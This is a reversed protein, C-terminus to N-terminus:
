LDREEVICKLWRRREDADIVGRIDFVRTGLRIRMEPAVGSRYRMWVDHTAVSETRDLRVTEASTRPWIAAWVEDILAWTVDAGGGGDPARVPAEISIRHRLDGTSVPAKM